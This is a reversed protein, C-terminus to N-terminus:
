IVYLPSTCIDLGKYTQIHSSVNIVTDYYYINSHTEVPKPLLKGFEMLAYGHLERIYDYSYLDGNTKTMVDAIDALTMVNGDADPAYHMFLIKIYREDNLRHIMDIIHYKEHVYEHVKEQMLKELDTYKEVLRLQRSQGDSTSQVRVGDYSIAGCSRAMERLSNIQVTMQKIEEALVVLRRLYDRPNM